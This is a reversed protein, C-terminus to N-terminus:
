QTCSIEGISKVMIVAAEGAFAVSCSQQESHLESVWEVNNEMHPKWWRGSEPRTLLM